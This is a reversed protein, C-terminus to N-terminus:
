DSRAVGKTKVIGLHGEHLTELVYHRLSAPVIVRAGRVLIGQQVKLEDRRSYFPKEELQQPSTSWDQQLLEMVQSLELDTRTAQRIDKARIPLKDVISVHLLTIEDEEEATGSKETELPLPSLGDCNAHQHTTKFEIQYHFAGLSLCWRQIRAAATVPVPKSLAMIYKLPKHDTVLVFPQGELYM